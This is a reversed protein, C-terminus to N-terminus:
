AAEELLNRKSRGTKGGEDLWQLIAAGRIRPESGIYDEKLYGAKAARFITMYAVGTLTAVENYNYLADPKIEPKLALRILDATLKKVEESTFIKEAISQVTTAASM